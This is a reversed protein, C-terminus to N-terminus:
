HLFYYLYLFTFLFIVKFFTKGPYTMTLIITVSSDHYM